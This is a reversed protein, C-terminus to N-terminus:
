SNSKSIIRWNTNASDNMITVSGGPTNIIYASQGGVTDSGDPLITICHDGSATNTGDIFTYRQGSTMGTSAQLQAYRSESLDTFLITGDGSFVTAVSTATAGINEVTGSSFTAIGLFETAGMTSLDPTYYASSFTLGDVGLTPPTTNTLHYIAGQFSGQRVYLIVGSTFDATADADTDRTWTGNAGTGVVDVKYIGNQTDTTQAILLLRDGVTLGIGDATDPTGTALNAINSNVVALVPHKFPSHRDRHETVIGGDEGILAYGITSSPM